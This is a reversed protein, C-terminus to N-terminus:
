WHIISMTNNDHCPWKIPSHIEQSAPSCNNVPSANTQSWQKQVFESGCVNVIRQHYTHLKHRKKYTDRKLINLKKTSLIMIHVHMNIYVWPQKKKTTQVTCFIGLM